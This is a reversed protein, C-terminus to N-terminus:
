PPDVIITGPGGGGGGGCNWTWTRGDAPQDLAKVTRSEGVPITLRHRGDGIQTLGASQSEPASVDFVGAEFTLVADWTWKNEIRVLAGGGVHLPTPSLECKDCKFVTEYSYPEEQTMEDEM